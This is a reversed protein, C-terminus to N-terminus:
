NRVDYGLPGILGPTASTATAPGRSNPTPSTHPYHRVPGAISRQGDGAALNPSRLPVRQAASPPSAPATRSAAGQTPITGRRLAASPPMPAGSPPTQPAGGGPAPVAEGEVPVGPAGMLGPELAGGEPACCKPVEIHARFARECDDPSQTFLGPGGPPVECQEMGQVLEPTVMILLEIENEEHEVRRFPVGICPLDMLWPIGRTEAETRTQVLGAIALTQGAKLEVGTDVERTRLGPVTLGGITVSRAPDIESVRPRVELRIHGDNLVIPVFDVQTGFKKYEISVTGM